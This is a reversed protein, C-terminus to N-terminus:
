LSVEQETSRSEGTVSPFSWMSHTSQCFSWTPSQWGSSSDWPNESILLVQQSLSLWDEGRRGLSQSNQSSSVLIELKRAKFDSSRELMNRGLFLLKRLSQGESKFPMKGIFLKILCELMAVKDVDIVLKSIQLLFWAIITPQKHERLSLCPVFADVCVCVCARLFLYVFVCAYKYVSIRIFNLFNYFIVNFDFLIFCKLFRVYYFGCHTQSM